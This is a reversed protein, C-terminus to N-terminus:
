RQRGKSEPQDETSRQSGQPSKPRNLIEGCLMQLKTDSVYCETLFQVINSGRKKSAMVGDQTTVVQAFKHVEAQTVEFYM